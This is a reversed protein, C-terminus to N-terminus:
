IGESIVLWAVKGGEEKRVRFGWAGCTLQDVIHLGRGRESLTPAPFGTVNPIRPDGDTVECILGAATYRLRLEYPGEAHEVANAVLESVALVSDSTEEGPFGLQDLACRLAMRACAVTDATAITWRWLVQTTNFAARAPVSTMRTPTSTM